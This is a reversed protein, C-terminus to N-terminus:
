PAIKKEWCWAFPAPNKDVDKGKFQNQRNVIITIDYLHTALSCESLVFFLLDVRAGV